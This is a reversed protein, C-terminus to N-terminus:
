DRERNDVVNLAARAHIISSTSEKVISYVPRNGSHQALM